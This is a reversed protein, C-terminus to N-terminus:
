CTKAALIARRTRAHSIERPQVTKGARRGKRAPVAALTADRAVGRTM